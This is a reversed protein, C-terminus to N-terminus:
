SWSDILYRKAIQMDSLLKAAEEVTKNNYKVLCDLLTNKIQAAMKKLDGCVYISAGETILNVIEKGNQMIAEQIYKSRGNDIRSFSTSLKTITGNYLFAQLENKYIYDLNPNRCGFFLWVDGVKEHMKVNLFQREELFGIFPSVGTGPGILILPTELCSPPTFGMINKRLYIPIKISDYNNSLSLSQFHNELPLEAGLLVRELYGTVVGKRNNGLDMVSFCIKLEKSNVKGSNVISYPRPLLRPLYSLLLEIPPKCSKFIAFLDLICFQKNLVYETYELSGEKSCLYELIQRENEDKTHKSLALIFLKKLISRIDCCYTLVHRLTSKIPVHLLKKTSKLNSNEIINYQLDAKSKLGLHDIIEEVETNINHPVIGITDGPRFNFDSGKVNFSVEYVTKCADNEKTLRRWNRINAKFISTSAFPLSVDQPFSTPVIDSFRIELNHEKYAPLSFSSLKSSSELVDRLTCLVM